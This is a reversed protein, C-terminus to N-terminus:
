KKVAPAAGMLKQNLEKIREQLQAIKGQADARLRETDAKLRAIEEDKASTGSSQQQAQQVRWEVDHRLNSIEEEKEAVRQRWQV